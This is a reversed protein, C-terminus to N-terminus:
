SSGARVATLLRGTKPQVMEMQRQSPEAKETRQMQEDMVGMLIHEIANGVWGSHECQELDRVCDWAKGYLTVGM